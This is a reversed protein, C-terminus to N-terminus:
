SDDSTLDAAPTMDPQESLDPPVSMDPMAMDPPTFAPCMSDPAPLEGSAPIRVAAWASNSLDLMLPMLLMGHIIGCYRDASRITGVLALDAVIDSGTIPNAAGPVMVMGFVIELDGNAAIKQGSRTIKNGVAMRGMASLAQIDLDLTASGDGNLTVRNETIFQIPKSPDITTAVTLLFKGSIDSFMGSPMDRKAVSLDLSEQRNVFEEFQGRPSPCGTLAVALFLFSCRM